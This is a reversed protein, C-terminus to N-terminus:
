RTGVKSRVYKSATGVETEKRGKKKKEQKNEKPLPPSQQKITKNKQEM